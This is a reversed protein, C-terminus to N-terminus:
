VNTIFPYTIRNQISNNSTSPSTSTPSISTVCSLASKATRWSPTCWYLFDGCNMMFLSIHERYMDGFHKDFQKICVFSNLGCENKPNKCAKNERKNFGTCLDCSFVPLILTRNLAHALFLMNRLAPVEIVGDSVVSCSYVLTPTPCKLTLSTPDVPTRTTTRWMMNTSVLSRSATSRPMVALWGTTILLSPM